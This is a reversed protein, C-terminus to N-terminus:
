DKTHLASYSSLYAGRSNRETRRKQCWTFGSFQESPRCQYGRYDTSDFSIYGGLPIKDITYKSAQNATRPPEAPLQFPVTPPQQLNAQFKCAGVVGTMRPDSPPIGNMTLAQLSIGRQRLNDEVCSLESPPLKRWQAQTAQVMTTQVITGFINMIDRASQATAPVQGIALVVSILSAPLYNRM